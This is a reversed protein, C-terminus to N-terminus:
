KHESPEAKREPAKLYNYIWVGQTTLKFARTGPIKRVIGREALDTLVHAPQSIAGRDWCKRIVRKEDETLEIM